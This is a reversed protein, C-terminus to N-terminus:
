RTRRVDAPRAQGAPDSNASPDASGARARAAALGDNSLEILHELSRGHRDLKTIVLQAGARAARLAADPPPRKALKGSATDIYGNRARPRASPTPKRRPTSTAPQSVAM